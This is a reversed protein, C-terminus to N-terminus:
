KSLCPGGRLYAALCRNVGSNHEGDELRDVACGTAHPAFNARFNAENDYYSGDRRRTRHPTYFGRCAGFPLRTQIKQALAPSGSYFSDLLILREFALGNDLTLGLGVYGGSHAAVVRRPFALGTRAGLDQLNRETVQLGSRYTALVAYGAQRATEGLGYRDFAERSSALSQSGPVSGALEGYHGRLYILLPPNPGAGPPAYFCGVKDVPVCPHEAARAPFSLAVAIVAALPLRM